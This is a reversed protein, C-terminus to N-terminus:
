REWAIGRRIIRAPNGAIVCDAEGFPRTLVSGAGVVCGDPVTVGKGIFVRGAVWVHQGLTVAAPPNLIARSEADRIRHIDSSRIEIGAAFLSDAGLTVGAHRAVITVQKADCRDGIEVVLGDGYVSIVGGWAVGSGIRLLNGHGVVRIALGRNRFGTGVVIRNGTAGHDFLTAARLRLASLAPGSVTNGRFALFAPRWPLLSAPLPRPLAPSPPPPPMGAM